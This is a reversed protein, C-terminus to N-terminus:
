NKRLIKMLPLRFSKKGRLFGGSLDRDRSGVQVGGRGQELLHDFIYTGLEVPDKDDRYQVRSPLAAKLTESFTRQKMSIILNDVQQPARQIKM